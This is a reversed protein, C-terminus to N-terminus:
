PKKTGAETPVPTLVASFDSELESLLLAPVLYTQPDGKVSLYANDKERNGFRYTKETGDKLGVEVTFAPSQLGSSATPAPFDSISLGSLGNILAAGESSAEPRGASTWNGKSDKTYVFSKGGHLITMAQAKDGDFQLVTKDRFDLLKLKMAQDFYDGVAYISTGGLAKAYASPPEKVKKGVLIGQPPEQDMPWVEVRLRPHALGYKQLSSPHDNVFTVIRAESIQSLLNRIQSTDAKARIPETIEWQDAGSKEFEFVKGDREVRIKKAVVTDTTFFTHDRYNDLPKSLNDATYSPVLFVTKQDATKVYTNSKSLDRNGMLIVFTAGKDSVLTCRADPPDLGYDALREPKDIVVDSSMDGVGALAQRIVSEDAPFHGPALIQWDDKKGRHIDIPVRRAAVTNGLDEVRIDRIDDAVFHSLLKTKKDKNDQNKVPGREFFYIYGGLLAGVALYLLLPKFSKM